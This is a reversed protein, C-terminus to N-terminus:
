SSDIWDMGPKPFGRWAQQLLDNKYWRKAFLGNWAMKLWDLALKLLNM